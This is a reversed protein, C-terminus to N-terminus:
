KSRFPAGVFAAKSCLLNKADFERACQTIEKHKRLVSIRNGPELAPTSLTAVASRKKSKRASSAERMRLRRVDSGPPYITKPKSAPPNLPMFNVEALDSDSLCTLPTLASPPQSSLNLEDAATSTEFQADESAVASQLGVEVEALDLSKRAYSSGSWLQMSYRPQLTKPLQSCIASTRGDRPDLWEAVEHSLFLSRESAQSFIRIDALGSRESGLDLSPDATSNSRMLSVQTVASIMFMPRKKDKPRPSTYISIILQSPTTPGNLSNPSNFLNTTRKKKPFVSASSSFPNNPEAPTSSSCTWGETRSNALPTPMDHAEFNIRLLHATYIEELRSKEWALLRLAAAQSILAATSPCSFLLPNLGVMNLTLANAYQKPPDTATAPVAVSGMAQVFVDMM